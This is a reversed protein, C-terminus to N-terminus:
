FLRKGIKLTRALEFIILAGKIWQTRHDYWSFDQTLILVGVVENTPYFIIM